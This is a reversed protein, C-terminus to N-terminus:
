PSATCLVTNADRVRMAAAITVVIGAALLIDGASIVARFARLPIVDGLARLRTGPGAAVHKAVNGANVDVNRPAGAQRAADLSIPMAGNAVIPALNCFWGIAVLAMGVRLARPRARLNLLLWAGVLSYSVDVVMWRVPAAVAVLALQIVLAAILLAIARIRLERLCAISGGALRGLLVGGALALPLLLM